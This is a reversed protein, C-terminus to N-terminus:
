LGRSGKTNVGVPKPTPPLHKPPEQYIFGGSEHESCALKGFFLGLWLGLGLGSVFMFLM